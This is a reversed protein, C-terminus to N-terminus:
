TCWAGSLRAGTLEAMVAQRISPHDDSIVLRVGRLGREMLGKLLNRWAKKREGGAPEM